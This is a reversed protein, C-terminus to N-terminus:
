TSQGYFLHGQGTSHRLPVLAEARASSTAQPLHSTAQGATKLYLDTTHAGSACSSIGTEISPASSVVGDLPGRVQLRQSISVRGLNVLVCYYFAKVDGGSGGNMATSKELSM